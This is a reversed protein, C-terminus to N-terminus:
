EARNEYLYFYVKQLESYVPIRIPKQTDPDLEPEGTDPDIPTIVDTKHGDDYSGTGNEAGNFILYLNNFFESIKGMIDPQKSWYESEFRRETRVLPSVREVIGRYDDLEDTSLTLASAFSYFTEYYGCYRLYDNDSSLLLYYSILNADGERQVGKTHALEHAMTCTTYTPPAAINVNAEGTPLFTIGTILLDSLFWSNVIPKATPTYSYFYGDDLRAYEVKMLEALEGFSYPCIANGDGDREFKEALANFDALFHEASSLVHEQKYDAGAAVLPMPKRYYGFAMSLTYLDFVFLAAVGLSLIGFLIRKFRAFCLNVVLRVFLYIAALILCVVAFEFVSIPLWSTLTGAAREFPQAINVSWFEAVSPDHKIANMVLVLAALAAAVAGAVFSPLRLRREVAIRKFGHATYYPARSIKVPLRANKLGCRM